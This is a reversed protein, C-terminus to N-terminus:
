SITINRPEKLKAEEKKPIVVTLIGNKHVANIREAEISNPLTFSRKFSSYSFERRVFKYTAEEKQDEKESTITLLNNHFEIKFDEKELGPAAVEIRYDTNGEIVNM